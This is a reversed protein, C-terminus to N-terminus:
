LPMYVCFMFFEFIFVYSLCVFLLQNTPLARMLHQEQECIKFPILLSNSNVLLNVYVTM